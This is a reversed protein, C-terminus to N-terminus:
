NLPSCIVTVRDVVRGANGSIGTVVHNEPCRIDYPSGGSGGASEDMVRRTRGIRPGAVAQHANPDAIHEGLRTLAVEAMAEIEEATMGDLALANDAVRAREAETAREAVDAYSLRGSASPSEVDGDEGPRSISLEDRLIETEDGLHIGIWRQGHLLHERLAAQRGLEVQYRGDVVSVFHQEQWLPDASMSGRYLRFSLPFVGSVPQGRDSELVGRYIVVVSDAAVAEAAPENPDREEEASVAAPVVAVSLIAIVWPLVANQPLHRDM